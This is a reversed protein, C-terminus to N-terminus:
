ENISHKPFVNWITWTWNLGSNQLTFANVLTMHRKKELSQPSYSTSHAAPPPTVTVFVYNLNGTAERIVCMLLFRPTLNAGAKYLVENMLFMSNIFLSIKKFPTLFFSWSSHLYELVSKWYLDKKQARLQSVNVTIWLSTNKKNKSNRM